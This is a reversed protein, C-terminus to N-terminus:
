HGHAARLTRVVADFDDYCGVVRSDHNPWFLCTEDVTMTYDDVTLRYCVASVECDGVTATRQPGIENREM